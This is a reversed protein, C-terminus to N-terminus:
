KKLYQICTRPRSTAFTNCNTQWKLQFIIYRLNLLKVLFLVATSLELPIMVHGISRYTKNAERVIVIIIRVTIHVTFDM